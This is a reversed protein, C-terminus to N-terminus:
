NRSTMEHHQLWRVDRSWQDVICGYEKEIRSTLFSLKQQAEDFQEYLVTLETVKQMYYFHNINRHVKFERTSELRRAFTQIKQILKNLKALQTMLTAPLQIFPGSAM